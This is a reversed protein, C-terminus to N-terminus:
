QLYPNTRLQSLMAGETKYLCSSIEFPNSLFIIEHRYPAVQHKLSSLGYSEMMEHMVVLKADMYEGM